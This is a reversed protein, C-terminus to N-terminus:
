VCVFMCIVVISQNVKNKLAKCQRLTVSGGLQLCIGHAGNKSVMDNTMDAQHFSCMLYIYRYKIYIFTYTDTFIYIYVCVCVYM